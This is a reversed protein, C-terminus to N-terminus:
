YFRAPGMMRKSDPRISKVDLDKQAYMADRVETMMEKNSKGVYPEELFPTLRGM